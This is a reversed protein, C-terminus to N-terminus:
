IIDKTFLVKIDLSKTSDGDIANQHILWTICAATSINNRNLLSFIAAQLNQLRRFKEKKEKVTHLPALFQCAFRNM